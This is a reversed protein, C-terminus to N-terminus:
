PDDAVYVQPVCATEATAQLPPVRCLRVKAASRQLPQQALGHPLCPPPLRSSSAHRGRWCHFTLVALRRLPGHGLGGAVLSLSCSCPLRRGGSCCSLSLFPFSLVSILSVLIFAAHLHPRAGVTEPRERLEGRGLGLGAM